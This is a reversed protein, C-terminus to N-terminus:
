HACTVLFKRCYMERHQTVYALATEMDLTSLYDYMPKRVLEMRKEAIVRAMVPDLVDLGNCRPCMLNGEYELLLQACRECPM